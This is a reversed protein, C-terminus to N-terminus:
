IWLKKKDIRNEIGNEYYAFTNDDIDKLDTPYKYLNKGWVEDNKNHVEITDEIIEQQECVIHDPFEGCIFARTLLEKAKEPNDAEVFARIIYTAEADIFYKM